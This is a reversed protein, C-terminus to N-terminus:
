YSKAWIITYNNPLNFTHTRMNPMNLVNGFKDLANVVTNINEANKVKLSQVHITNPLSKWYRTDAKTEVNMSFVKAALGVVSLATGFGQLSNSSENLASWEVLTNGTKALSDGVNRSTDSFQVKGKVIRDISRGGRTSAQWYIDEVPLLRTEVGNLAVKAQTDKFKKGARYVLEYKGIGDALKRPSKGTEVIVLVNDETKPQPYGNRLESFRNISTTWLHEADMKMAAWASLYLMLAFDARHQKEEAFADQLLGSVFVARANEVDGEALYVLGLYYYAMVREYPEGKFDKIAEEYWISRAKEAAPNDTYIVEIGRVANEFAIKAENIDGSKFALSGIEMYNLVSNRRGEKFLKKYMPQLYQAKSEIIEQESPQAFSQPFYLLVLVVLLLTKDM